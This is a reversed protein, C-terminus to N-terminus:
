SDEGVKFALRGESRGNRLYHLLAPAGAETVDPYKQHYKFASFAPGPDRLEYAGHLVFHRLPDGGSQAVDPYNECYWGAEFLGSQAVMAIESAVAKEARRRAKSYFPKTIARHLREKTPTLTSIIHNRLAVYEHQATVRTLQVEKRTIAHGLEAIDALRNLYREELEAYQTSKNRLEEREAALAVEFKEREETLKSATLVSQDREKELNAYEKKLDGCEKELNGHAKELNSIKLKNADRENQLEAELDALRSSVDFMRSKLTDLKRFASAESERSKAIEKRAFELDDGIREDKAQPDVQRDKTEEAIQPMESDNNSTPTSM